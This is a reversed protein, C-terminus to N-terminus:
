TASVDSDDLRELTRLSQIEIAVLQWVLSLKQANNYFRNFNVSITRSRHESFIQIFKALIVETCFLHSIIQGTQFARRM